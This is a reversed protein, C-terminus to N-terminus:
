TRNVFLCSSVPCEIHYNSVIGWLSSYHEMLQDSFPRFHSLIDRIMVWLDEAEPSWPAARLSFFSCALTTCLTRELGLEWIIHLLMPWNGSSVAHNLAYNIMLPFVLHLSQAPSPLSLSVRIIININANQRIMMSRTWLHIKTTDWKREM